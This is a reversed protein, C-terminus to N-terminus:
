QDPRDKTEAALCQRFLVWSMDEILGAVQQVNRGDITHPAVALVSVACKQAHQMAISRREEPPKPKWGGGGGGGPKRAEKAVLGFGKDSIDVIELVDAPKPVPATRKRNLKIPGKERGDSNKLTVRYERMDDGWDRTQDEVATVTYSPM